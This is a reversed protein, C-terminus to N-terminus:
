FNWVLIFILGCCLCACGLLLCMYANCVWHHVQILNICYVLFWLALAGQFYHILIGQAKCFTTPNGQAESFLKSTCFAKKRGMGNSVALLFGLSLM